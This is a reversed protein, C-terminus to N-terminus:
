ERVVASAGSEAAHILCELCISPATAAAATAETGGAEASGTPQAWRSSSQQAIITAGCATKSGDIAAQKSGITFASTGTVIPYTGNCKPCSTLDGVQALQRGGVSFTTSGTIVRGGHSTQDGVCALAFTM